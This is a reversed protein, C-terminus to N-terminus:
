IKKKGFFYENIKCFFMFNRYKWHSFIHMFGPKYRFLDHLKIQQFTHSMKRDLSM